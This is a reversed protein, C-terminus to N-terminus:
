HRQLGLQPAKNRQMDAILHPRLARSPALEKTRTRMAALCELKSATHSDAPTHHVVVFQPHTLVPTRFVHFRLRGLTPGSRLTYVVNETLGFQADGCAVTQWMARFDDNRSLRGFVREMGPEHLHTWRARWFFAVVRFMLTDIDEMYTVWPALSSRSTLGYILEVTRRGRLREKFECQDSVGHCPGWIPIMLPNWYWHREGNDLLMAPYTNSDLVPAMETAVSCALDEDPLPPSVQYGALALLQDRQMLTLELAECIRIVTWYEPRNRGNEMRSIHAQSTRVAFALDEQSYPHGQVQQRRKRYAVILDGVSVGDDQITAVSTLTAM